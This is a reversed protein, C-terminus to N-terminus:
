GGIRPLADATDRLQDPDRVTLFIRPGSGGNGDWEGRSFLVTYTGAEDTPGGLAYGNQDNSWALTLADDAGDPDNSASTCTVTYLGDADPGGWEYSFFAHPHTDVRSGRGANDTGELGLTTAWGEPGYRHRVETVCYTLPDTGDNAFVEPAYVEVVKGALLYPNGVTTLTVRDVLKNRLRMNATAAEAAYEATEILDSSIAQVLYHPPTPVYPSAASRTHEPRERAPDTPVRGLVHARNRTAAPDRERRIGAFIPLAGAGADRSLRASPSTGLEGAVGPWRRRKPGGTPTDHWIYLALGDMEAMLGAPPEREGGVLPAERGLEDELGDVDWAPIGAAQLLKRACRWEALHHMTTTHKAPQQALALFGVGGITMGYPWHEQGTDATWGVFCTEYVPGSPLLYGLEIVLPVRGVLPRLLTGLMAPTAEPVVVRATAPTLGGVTMPTAIDAETARVVVAPWSGGAPDYVLARADMAGPPSSDAGGAYSGGVRVRCIAVLAHLPWTLADRVSPATALSGGNAAANAAAAVATVTSFHGFEPAPVAAAAPAPVAALTVNIQSNVQVPQVFEALAAAAPPAITTGHTATPSPAAAAAAAAVAQVRVGALTPVGAAAAATAPVCAITGTPLVVPAAGLRVNALRSEPTGLSGTTAM